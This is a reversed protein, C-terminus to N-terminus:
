GLDETTLTEKRSRLDLYWYTYTVGILVVIVGQALIGLLAGILIALSGSGTAAFPFAILQILQIAVGGLLGVLTLFGATVWWRGRVLRMSRQISSLASRDEVGIVAPTVAVSIAAWIAPALLLVFLLLAVLVSGPNPTGVSIFPVSWVFVGLVFLAIVTVAIIVMAGLGKGFRSLAQKTIVGSTVNGGSIDLVVARAAVLNLFMGLIAQLIVAVGVALYFPVLLDVLQEDTMANFADPNNLVVEMFENGGTVGFAVITIVGIPVSVALAPGVLAKWIRAVGNTADGLMQGFPRPEIVM